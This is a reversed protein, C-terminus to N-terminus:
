SWDAGHNMGGCSCECNPGRASTCRADCPHDPRHKGAVPALTVHGDCDPSDCGCYLVHPAVLGLIDGDVAIARGELWRSTVNRGHVAPLLASHPQKCTRCRGLLRRREPFRDDALPLEVTAGNYRYVRAPVTVPADLTLQM